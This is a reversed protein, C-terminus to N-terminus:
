VLMPKRPGRALFEATPKAGPTPKPAATLAFASALFSYLVKNIIMM